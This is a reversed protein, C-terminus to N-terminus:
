CVPLQRKIRYAAHLGLLGAVALVALGGVPELLALGAGMGALLLPLTAPHLSGAPATAARTAILADVSLRGGGGFVLPVLMAIFLVPLKFNGLGQDSIAYGKALEGLGTWMMPWHVAATAVLTVVLLSTAALRTALGFLLCTAGVLEMTTALTWNLEASLLRFPLPFAHQIEAFWNDGRLKMLGADLFEWALLLRLGLPTLWPSLLDLQRTFSGLSPTRM